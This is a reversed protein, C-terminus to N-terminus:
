QIRKYLAPTLRLFLSPAMWYNARVIALRKPVTEMGDPYLTRDFGEPTPIPREVEQALAPLVTNPTERHGIFFCTKVASWRMEQGTFM